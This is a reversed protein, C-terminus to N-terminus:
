KRKFAKVSESIKKKQEEPMKYGSYGNKVKEIAEYSECGNKIEYHIKKHCSACTPILNDISNNYRNKDIHHIQIMKEKEGCLACEKKFIQYAIKRYIQRGDKWRGHQEKNRPRKLIKLWEGSQVKADSRVKSNCPRCYGQHKQSDGKRILFEKLCRNCIIKVARQRVGNKREIWLEDDRVKRKEASRKGLCSRCIGLSKNHKATIREYGCDPCKVIKAKITRKGSKVYLDEM